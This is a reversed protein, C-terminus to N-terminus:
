KEDFHLLMITAKARNLMSYQTTRYKITFINRPLKIRMAWQIYCFMSHKIKM